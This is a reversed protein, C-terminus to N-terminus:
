IRRNGLNGMKSAVYFAYTTAAGRRILNKEENAVLLDGTRDRDRGGITEVTQANPKSNAASNTDRNADYGVGSSRWLSGEAGQAEGGVPRAFLPGAM